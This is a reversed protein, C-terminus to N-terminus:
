TNSLRIEVWRLRPPLNQRPIRAGIKDIGYGAGPDEAAGGAGAPPRDGGIYSEKRIRGSGQGRTIASAFSTSRQALVTLCCGYGPKTVIKGVM